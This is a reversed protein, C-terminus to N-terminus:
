RSAFPLWQKSGVTLEGWADFYAELYGWGNTKDQNGKASSGYAYKKTLEIAARAWAVEVEGRRRLYELVLEVCLENLLSNSPQLEMRLESPTRSIYYLLEKQRQEKYLKIHNIIAKKDLNGAFVLKQMLAEHIPQAPESVELWRNLESYGKDTISCINKHPQKVNDTRDLTILGESSMENITRYIQQVAPRVPSWFIKHLSYGTRPGVSLIGLLVHKLAM